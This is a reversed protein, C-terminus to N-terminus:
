FSRHAASHRGLQQSGGMTRGLPDSIVLCIRSEADAVAMGPDGSGGAGFRGFRRTLLWAVPKSCSRLHVRSWTGRHYTKLVHCALAVM